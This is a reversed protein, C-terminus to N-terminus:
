SLVFVHDLEFAIIVSHQGRVHQSIVPLPLVKHSCIIPTLFLGYELFIDMRRETLNVMQTDCPNENGDNEGSTLYSPNAYRLGHPRQTEHM